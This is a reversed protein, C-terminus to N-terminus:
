ADIWIAILTIIFISLIITWHMMRLLNLKFSFQSQHRQIFSPIALVFIFAISLLDHQFIPDDGGLNPFERGTWWHVEEQSVRSVPLLVMALTYVNSANLLASQLSLLLM